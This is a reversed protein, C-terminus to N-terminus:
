RITSRFCGSWAVDMTPAGWGSSSWASSVGHHGRLLQQLIRRPFWSRQQLVTASTDRLAQDGAPPPDGAANRALVLSIVNAAWTRPGRGRGVDARPVVRHGGHVHHVAVGPVAADAPLRRHRSSPRGMLRGRDDAGMSGAGGACSGPEGVGRALEPLVAGRPMGLGAGSGSPRPLHCRGFFCAGPHGEWIGNMGSGVKAEVRDVPHGAKAAWESLRAAQRDLDGRQDHSSVRAYLGLAAGPAAPATDPSVLITRQNVRVTPVPLTGAHFWRYATQPHIGQRRAWETLNVSGADNGSRTYATYRRTKRCCHGVGHSGPGGLPSRAEALRPTNRRSTQHM